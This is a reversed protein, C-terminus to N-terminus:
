RPSTDVIDTAEDTEAVVWQHNELMTMIVPLQITSFTGASNTGVATILAHVRAGPQATQITYNDKEDYDPFWFVRDVHVQTWLGRSVPSGVYDPGTTSGLGGGDKPTLLAATYAQASEVFPGEKEVNTYDSGISFPQNVRAVQRPLANVQFTSSSLVLDVEFLYTGVDSAGPAVVRAEVQERYMYEDQGLDFGTYEVPWARLSQIQYPHEPLDIKMDGPLSYMRALTEAQTKNEETQSGGLWLTMFDEAFAGARLTQSVQKNVEERGYTEQEEGGFLLSLLLSFAILIGLVLAVPGSWVVLNSARDAVSRSKASDNFLPM